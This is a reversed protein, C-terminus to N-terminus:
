PYLSPLGALFIAFSKPTTLPQTPPNVFLASQPLLRVQWLGSLTDNVSRGTLVDCWQESRTPPSLLGSALGWSGQALAVRFSQTSIETRSLSRQLERM